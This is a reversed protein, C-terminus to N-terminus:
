LGARAREIEWLEDISLFNDPLWYLSTGTYTYDGDIRNWKVLKYTLAAYERSGGDEYVGLPVPIFLLLLICLILIIIEKKKM